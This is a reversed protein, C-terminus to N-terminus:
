ISSAPNERCPPLPLGEGVLWFHALEGGWLRSFDGGTSEGRVLNKDGGGWWIDSGGGVVWGVGGQVGAGGVLYCNELQLGISMKGSM